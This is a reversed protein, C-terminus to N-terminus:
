IEWNELMKLYGLIKEVKLYITTKFLLSEVAKWLINETGERFETLSEFIGVEMLYLRQGRKGGSASAGM